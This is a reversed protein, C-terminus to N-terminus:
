LQDEEMTAISLDNKWLTRLLSGVMQSSPVLGGGFTCTFLKLNFILRDNALILINGGYFITLTITLLLYSTM